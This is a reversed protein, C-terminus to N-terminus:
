GGPPPPPPPPPPSTNPASEGTAGTQAKNPSGQSFQRENDEPNTRVVNPRNTTGLANPVNVKPWTKRARPAPPVAATEESATQTTAEKNTETALPQPKPAPKHRKLSGELAKVRSKVGTEVRDTTAHVSPDHVWNGLVKFYVKGNLAKGWEGKKEKTPDDPNVRLYIHSPIPKLEEELREEEETRNPHLSKHDAHHPPASADPEGAKHHHPPHEGPHKMCPMGTDAPILVWGKVGGACPCPPCHPPRPAHEPHTAHEAQGAHTTPGAYGPLAEGAQIANLGMFAIGALLSKKFM